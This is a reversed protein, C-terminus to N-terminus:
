VLLTIINATSELENWSIGHVSPEKTPEQRLSGDPDHQQNHEQIGSCKLMIPKMLRHDSSPKFWNIFRVTIKQTQLTHRLLEWREVTLDLWLFHPQIFEVTHLYVMHGGRKHKYTIHTNHIARLHFFYFMKFFVRGKAQDRVITLSFWSFNGARFLKSISSETNWLFAFTCDGKIPWSETGWHM